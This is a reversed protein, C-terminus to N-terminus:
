ILSEDPRKGEFKWEFIKYANRMEGIQAVHKAWKVM